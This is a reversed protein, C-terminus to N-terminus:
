FPTDIDTKPFESWAIIDRYDGIWKKGNWFAILYYGYADKIIYEGKKDPSYMSRTYGCKEKYAKM